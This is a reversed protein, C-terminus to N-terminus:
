SPNPGNETTPVTEARALVRRRAAGTAKGVLEELPGQRRFTRWILAFAFAAAVQLIFSLEPQDEYFGTGLVLLHACYLTLTMSGVAALPLLYRGAAHGILLMAGLVAASIGITYTLDLPTTSHPALIAFWWYTTTPLYDQTGWILADGIAQSGMGPTAAEIRDLGGFPGLLLASTLWAALATGAGATLVAVQTKWEGLRLRGIALGACIYAMWPIAPYTGTLLLQSLIQGPDAFLDAFTPDYGPEPLHDRLLEMLVPGLVAFAAAAAFLARASLGLLPVALLFMVGYYALIIFAPMDVYAIALGLSGVLLARVVTSWRVATLQIGRKPRVGGSSLGLAVGALLAFLAAAKGAFLNWSWSPDFDDTTAPLLHIAMMGILAIGRAADIGTYRTKPTVGPTSM